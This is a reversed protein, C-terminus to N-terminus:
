ENYALSSKYSSLSDKEKGVNKGQVMFYSSKGISDDQLLLVSSSVEVIKEM